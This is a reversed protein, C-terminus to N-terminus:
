PPTGKPGNGAHGKTQFISQTKESFNRIRTSESHGVSDVAHLPSNRNAIYRLCFCVFVDEFMSSCLGYIYIDMTDILIIHLFLCICGVEFMSSCFGYIYIGMTDM